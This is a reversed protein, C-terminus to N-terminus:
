KVCDTTLYVNPSGSTEILFGTPVPMVPVCVKHLGPMDRIYLSTLVPNHSIDLTTLMDGDCNLYIMKPNKSIDLSTLGTKGCFLISLEANKSLDISTLLM